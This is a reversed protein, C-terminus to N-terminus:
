YACYFNITVINAETAAENVLKISVLDGPALDATHVTDSVIMGAPAGPPVVATIGTDGPFVGGSAVRFIVALSGTAPQDAGLNMYMNTVQCARAVVYQRLGEAAAVTAIGPGAFSTAHATITGPQASLVYGGAPSFEWASGNWQCLRKITGSGSACNSISTGDSVKALTGVPPAVPLSSATYTDLASSGGIKSYYFNGSGDNTLYGAANGSPFNTTVNNLKTINGNTNVQFPSSSGVSLLAAPSRTGIGVRGGNIQLDLNRVIGTGGQAASVHADGNAFKGMRLCEYGSLGLNIDTSCLDFWAVGTNPTYNSPTGRPYVDFAIISNDTTPTFYPVPFGVGVRGSLNYAEAGATGSNVRIKGSLIDITDSPSANGLGLRNNVSDWVFDDSDQQFNGDADFLVPFPTSTSDASSGRALPSSHTALSGATVPITGNQTNQGCLVASLLLAFAVINSIKM